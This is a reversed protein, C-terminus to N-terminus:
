TERRKRHGGIRYQCVWRRTDGRLRIGFGPLDEDWAIYEDKGAPLTLAAVSAKTFKM